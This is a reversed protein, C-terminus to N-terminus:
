EHDDTQKAIYDDLEPTVLWHGAPLIHIEPRLLLGLLKEANKPPFLNDYKGFYLRCRIHNQNILAALQHIDASFNKYFHVTFFGNQRKEPTETEHSAISYLNTDIVRFHKLTKLAAAMMWNSYTLKRYLKKGIFSARFFRFGKHKVLGDPAMLILEDVQSAFQQALYLALNAGISYGILSFRQGPKQGLWKYLYRKLIEPQMGTLVLAEKVVYLKSTEQFFLDFAIIKYQRMLSKQLVSFQRGSMGYGPFAFLLKTGSGYEHYHVSGLGEIELWAM